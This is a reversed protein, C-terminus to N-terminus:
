PSRETGEEAQLEQVQLADESESFMADLHEEWPRNLDRMLHLIRVVDFESFFARNAPAFNYFGDDGCLMRGVIKVSEGNPHRYYVHRVGPTISPGVALGFSVSYAQMPKRMRPAPDFVCTTARDILAAKLGEAHVLMKESNIDDIYSKM